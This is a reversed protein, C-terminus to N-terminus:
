FSTHWPMPDQYRAFPKWFLGLITHWPMPDQYRAFPKWFIGLITHSPMSIQERSEFCLELKEGKEQVPNGSILITFACENLQTCPCRPRNATALRRKHRLESVGDPDLLRRVDLCKDRSVDGLGKSVKLSLEVAHKLRDDVHDSFAHWMALQVRGVRRSVFLTPDDENGIGEEGALPVDEFGKL